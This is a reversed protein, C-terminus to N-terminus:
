KKERLRYEKPTVGELRKFMQTFHSFNGYGLELAVMSVPLNSNVLLDKAITLKCQIIYDKMNYGTEKKFLRTFYEPNLSIHESVDKVTLLKDTNELIYTKAREVYGAEAEETKPSDAAILFKVAKKISDITHYSNMYTEYSMQGNFLSIIDLDREYFYSFFMQTIRQHLVCLDYFGNASGALNRELYACIDKQLLSKQGAKLLMDWRNIFEDLSTPLRESDMGAHICILGPERVINNKLNEHLCLVEERINELTTTWGIYCAIESALATKMRTYLTEKQLATLNFPKESFFLIVFQGYRNKGIIYDIAQPLELTQVLMKIRMILDNEATIGGPHESASTADALLLKVYSAGAIKYGAERLLRISKEQASRQKSFLDMMVANLFETRHSDFLKGLSSMQKFRENVRLQVAARSLVKEIEEYPVPQVLYDFCGLKIGEQAYSFRAHSTLLIRLIDPYTEKVIANLELGNRGPMEIDSVLVDIPGARLIELAETTNTACAVRQYGLKKFDISTMLGNIVNVQDDVILANM